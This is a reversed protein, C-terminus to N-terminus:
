LEQEGGSGPCVLKALAAHKGPVSDRDGQGRAEAEGLRKM